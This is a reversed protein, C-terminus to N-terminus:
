KLFSLFIALIVVVTANPTLIEAKRKLIDRTAVIKRAKSREEFNGKIEREEM